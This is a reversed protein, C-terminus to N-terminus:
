CGCKGKGFNCMSKQGWHGGFGVSGESLTLWLNRFEIFVEWLVVRFAFAHELILVEQFLLLFTMHITLPVHHHSDRKRRGVARSSPGPGGWIMGPSVRCIQKMEALIPTRHSRRGEGKSLGM